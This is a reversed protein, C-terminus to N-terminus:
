VNYIVMKNIELNDGISYRQVLFEENMVESYVM